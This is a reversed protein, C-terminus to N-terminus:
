NGEKQGYHKNLYAIFRDKNCMCDRCVKIINGDNTEFGVMAPLDANHNIPYVLGCIDCKPTVFIGKM